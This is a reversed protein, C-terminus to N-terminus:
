DYTKTAKVEFALGHFAGILRRNDSALARVTKKDTHGGTATTGHDLGTAGLTAM